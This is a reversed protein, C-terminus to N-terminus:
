TAVENLRDIEALVELIDAADRPDLREVVIGAHCLVYEGIQLDEVGTCSVAIARGQAEVWALTGQVEV